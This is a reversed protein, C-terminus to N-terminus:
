SQCGKDYKMVFYYYDAKWDAWTEYGAAKLSEILEKDQELVSFNPPSVSSDKYKLYCYNNFTDIAQFSEEETVFHPEGKLLCIGNYGNVTIFCNKEKLYNFFEQTPKQFYFTIHFIGNRRKIFPLEAFAEYSIDWPVAKYDSEKIDSAFNEYAKAALIHQQELEFHYQKMMNISEVSSAHTSFALKNIKGERLERAAYGMLYETLLKAIKRGRYDKHIRIGELWGTGDSLVSYKAAGIVKNTDTDVAGAFVGAKDDVWSHFLQPIYDTGDWIYRCIDLIDNYDKHTLIRISIM